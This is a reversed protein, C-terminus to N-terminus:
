KKLTIQGKGTGVMSKLKANRAYKNEIRNIDIKYKIDDILDKLDPHRQMTQRVIDVSRRIGKAISAHSPKKTPNELNELFDKILERTAIKIPQVIEEVYIGSELNPYTKDVIKMIHNLKNHIEILMKTYQGKM